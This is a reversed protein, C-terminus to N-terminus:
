KNCKCFYALGTTTANQRIFKLEFGNNRKEAGECDLKVLDVSDIHNGALVSELTTCDIVKYKNPTTSTISHGGTNLQSLYLKKRGLEGSLGKRFLSANRLKNLRINRQLIRYNDSEPEFCLVKFDEVVQALRITFCGIHAGVDIVTSGNRLGFHEVQYMDQAVVEEIVLRDFTYKRYKVRAKGIRAESLLFPPKKQLFMFWKLLPSGLVAVIGTTISGNQDRRYLWGRSKSLITKMAKM